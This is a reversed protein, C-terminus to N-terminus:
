YISWPQLSISVVKGEDNSRFEYMYSGEYYAHITDGSYDDVYINEAPGLANLVEDVTFTARTPEVIISRISRPNSKLKFWYDGYMWQEFAETEPIGPRFIKPTGATDLLVGVGDEWTVPFDPFKGERLTELLEPTLHEKTFARDEIFEKGEHIHILNFSSRWDVKYGTAEGVFRLPVFTYNNKAFPAADLQVAKGNIYATKSGLTLKITTNDKKGTVTQTSQDWYLKIGAEAFIPRMEVFTRNNKIIPVTEFNIQGGEMYVEIPKAAAAKANSVSILSAILAVAFFLTFYKKFM